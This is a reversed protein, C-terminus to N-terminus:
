YSGPDLALLRTAIACGSAPSPVALGPGGRTCGGRAPSSGFFALNAAFGDERTMRNVLDM